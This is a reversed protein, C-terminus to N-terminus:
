RHLLKLIAGRFKSKGSSAPVVSKNTTSARQQKEVGPTNILYKDLDETKIQKGLDYGASQHELIESFGVFFDPSVKSVDNIYNLPRLPLGLEKHTQIAFSRLKVSYVGHKDNERFNQMLQRTSNEDIKSDIGNKLNIELQKVIADSNELVVQVERLLPNYYDTNMGAEAEKTYENDMHRSVAKYYGKMWKAAENVGQYKSMYNGEKRLFDALTNDAGYGSLEIGEASELFGLVVASGISM